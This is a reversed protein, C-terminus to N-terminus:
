EADKVPTGTATGNLANLESLVLNVVHVWNPNCPVVYHCNMDEVSLWRGRQQWREILADADSAAEPFSSYSRYGGQTSTIGWCNHNLQRKCYSSEIASVAIILKWHKLGLLHETHAALPSNKSELYQSVATHLQERQEVETNSSPPEADGGSEVKSAIHWPLLLALAVVSVVLAVRVHTRM